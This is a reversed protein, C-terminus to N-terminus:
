PRLAGDEIRIRHRLMLANLVTFVVAVWWLDLVMPLLLAEMPIAKMRPVVAPAPLLLAKMMPIVFAVEDGTTLFEAQLPFVGMAVM